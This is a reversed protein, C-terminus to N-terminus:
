LRDQNLLCEEWHSGEWRMEWAPSYSGFQNKFVGRMKFPDMDISLPILLSKQKLCFGSYM